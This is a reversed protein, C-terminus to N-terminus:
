FRFIALAASNTLMTYILGDASILGCVGDSGALSSGGGALSANGAPAAVPAAAQAAANALRCALAAMNLVVYLGGFTVKYPLLPAVSGRRPWVLLTALNGLPSWPTPGALTFLLADAFLLALLPVTAMTMGRRHLENAAALLCIQLLAIGRLVNGYIRQQCGRWSGGGAQHLLLPRPHATAHVAAPLFAQREAKLLGGLSIGDGEKHLKALAEGGGELRAGRIFIVPYTLVPVGLMACLVDRDESLLDAIHLSFQPFAEDAHVRLLISTALNCFPCLGGPKVFVAVDWREVIAALADAKQQLTQENHEDTRRWENLYQHLWRALALGFAACRGGGSSASRRMLGSTSFMVSAHESSSATSSPSM